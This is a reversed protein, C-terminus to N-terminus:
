GNASRRNWRSITNDRQGTSHTSFWVGQVAQVEAATGQLATHQGVRLPGGSSASSVCERGRGGSMWSVMADNRREAESFPACNQIAEAVGGRAVLEQGGQGDDAGGGGGQGMFPVRPTPVSTPAKNGSAADLCSSACDHAICQLGQRM